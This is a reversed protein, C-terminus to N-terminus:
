DIYEDFKPEPLKPRFSATERGTTIDWLWITGMRNQIMLTKSDPLFKLSKLSGDSTIQLSGTEGAAFYDGVTFVQNPPLTYTTWTGDSLVKLLRGVDNPMDISLISKGVTADWIRITKDYGSTAIKKSDPSFMVRPITNQTNQTHGTLFAIEDGTNVDYLWVGM